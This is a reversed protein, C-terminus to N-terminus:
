FMKSVINTLLPSLVPIVKGTCITQTELGDVTEIVLSKLEIPCTSLSLHLEWILSWPYSLTSGTVECPLSLHAHFLPPIFILLLFISSIQLFIQELAM